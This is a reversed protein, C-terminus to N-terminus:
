PMQMIKLACSSYRDTCRDQLNAQLTSNNNSQITDAFHHVEFYKSLKSPMKKLKDNVDQFHQPANNTGKIPLLINNPAVNTDEVYGQIRQRNQSFFNFYRPFIRM